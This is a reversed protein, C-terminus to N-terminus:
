PFDDDSEPGGYQGAGRDSEIALHTAPRRTQARM